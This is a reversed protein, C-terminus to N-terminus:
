VLGSIRNFQPTTMLFVRPVAIFNKWEEEQLIFMYDLIVNDNQDLRAPITAVWGNADTSGQGRSLLNDWWQQESFPTEDSGFTNTAGRGVAKKINESYQSVTDNYDTTDSIDWNLPNETQYDDFSNAPITLVNILFDYGRRDKGDKPKFLVVSWASLFKYLWDDPTHPGPDTAQNFPRLYTSHIFELLEAKVASDLGISSLHEYYNIWRALHEKNLVDNVHFLGVQALLELTAQGLIRRARDNGTTYEEPLYPFGDNGLPLQSGAALSSRTPDNEQWYNLMTPIDNPVLPDISIILDEPLGTGVPMGASPNFNPLYRMMPATWTGDIFRNAAIVKAMYDALPQGTLWAPHPPNESQTFLPVTVPNGNVDREQYTFLIIPLVGDRLWHNKIRSQDLHGHLGNLQTENFLELNLQNGVFSFAQKVRYNTLAQGTLWAPHPISATPTFFTVRNGNQTYNYYYRVHHLVGNRTLWLDRITPQQLYEYFDDVQALSITNFNVREFPAPTITDGNQDHYEFAFATTLADVVGQAYNRLAELAAITTDLAAVVETNGLVRFTERAAISFQIFAKLEELSMEQDNM